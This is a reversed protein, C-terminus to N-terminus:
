SGGDNGGKCVYVSIRGFDKLSVFCSPVTIGYWGIDINWWVFYVVGFGREYAADIAGDFDSKFYVIFYTDNLYLRSWWYFADQALFASGGDMRANVWKLAEVTDDVDVLPLSNSQMTSPVYNFTTPLGVLGFRGFLLPCAMFVLGLCFSVTLLCKATRKSVKLWNLRKWGLSFGDAHV